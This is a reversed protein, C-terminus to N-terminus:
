AFNMFRPAPKLDLLWEYVDLMMRGVRSWSFENVMWQRGRKGMEAREADSRSMADHLATVLPEVGIDIWWGCGHTLMGEWPAGRTSIAPIEHALAEAVVVGFNETHSPLVLLDATAFLKGKEPGFVAEEFLVQQLGLRDALHRLQVGYGNCDPGAICLEWDCRSAEVDRWARLLDDLKKIPHLRGLFLVRRRRPRQKQERTVDPIDIGNPVVCIPNRLGAARIHEREADCTAHICDAAEIARKQCLHWMLLKRWRSHTLAVPSLMGRPSIVLRSNDHRRIWSPYLNPVMWLGHSHLIDLNACANQLSRYMAPSFSLKKLVPFANYGRISITGLEPPLPNCTHLTIEAGQECLTEALRRVSYSPGGRELQLGSIVQAVVVADWDRLLESWDAQREVTSPKKM